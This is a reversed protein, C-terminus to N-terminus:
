GRLEMVGKMGPFFFQQRTSLMFQDSELICLVFIKQDFITLYTKMHSIKTIIRVKYLKCCSIIWM